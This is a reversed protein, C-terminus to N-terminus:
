APGEDPDPNHDREDAQQARAEGRIHTYKLNQQMYKNIWECTWTVRKIMKCPTNNAM